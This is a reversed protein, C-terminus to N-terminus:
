DILKSAKGARGRHKDTLCNGLLGRSRQRQGWDVVRAVARAVVGTCVIVRWVGVIAGGGCAQVASVCGRRSVMVVMVWLLMVM